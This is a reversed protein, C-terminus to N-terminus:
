GIISVGAPLTMIYGPLEPDTVVRQVSSNSIDMMGTTKQRHLYPTFGLTNAQGAM